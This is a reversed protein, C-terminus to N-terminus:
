PLPCSRRQKEPIEITFTIYSGISVCSARRQRGRESDRETVPTSRLRQSGDGGQTGPAMVFGTGRGSCVFVAGARGGGKM